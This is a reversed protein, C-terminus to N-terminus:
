GCCGGGRAKPAEGIWRRNWATINWLVWIPLSADRRGAIHDDIMAAVAKKSFGFRDLLSSSLIEARAKAGFGGRLWQAMPAGFGMKPRDIVADPILGRVAQKLLDKAGGAVKDAQPIDMAFDVLHHDLFPVRAELSSAMAIKDVRMLLLEPLRLSLDLHAMRTLQDSGPRVHDFGGLVWGPVRASDPDLWEDPLLGTAVLAEAAPSGAFARNDPVLAAKQGEWLSVAGGWFLEGDPQAARDLIDLRSALDPRAWALPATLGAALGRLPRPLWRRWPGWARRHVDLWSMWSSYGCFLEDAGEGVMVVKVGSKRVLESVFHLPICVWDAIPEDQTHILEDLYAEMEPAALTVVHHRTSFEGAVREAWDLENLHTHDTFGVTFTNVRSGALRSMLAVLSSSDIGGSLFAGVPVDAALHSAVAAELRTRIGTVFYDRRAAGSLNEVPPTRGPLPRWWRKAALTGAASIDLRHGAPLKFVGEFLTLPAPATLFSLAHWLAPACVDRVLRPHALLAKIESAFAWAGDIRAFYLPKIGMRDRALHLTAGAQDWLAFAFMGDLRELLGDIGWEEFGHVLVETDSHDTAFRHGARELLRRLAAHNYIEGNFTVRVTGDENAMPQAAGDSLDLISLRRHALGVARDDSLWLGSGDPGRHTIAASMGALLGPEVSGAGPPHLLGAIGCM